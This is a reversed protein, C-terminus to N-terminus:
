KIAVIFSALLLKGHIPTENEVAKQTTHSIDDSPDFSRKFPRAFVDLLRKTSGPVPTPIAGLSVPSQARLNFPPRTLENGSISGSPATADFEAQSKQTPQKLDHHFIRINAKPSTREAPSPVLLDGTGYSSPWGYPEPIDMESSFIAPAALADVTIRGHHLRDRTSKSQGQGAPKIMSAVREKAQKEISDRISANGQTLYYAAPGNSFFTSGM